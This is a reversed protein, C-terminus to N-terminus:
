VFHFLVDKNLAGLPLERTQFAFSLLRLNENRKENQQTMVIQETQLLPIRTEIKNGGSRSFRYLYVGRNRPTQMILHFFSYLSSVPSLGLSFPASKQVNM